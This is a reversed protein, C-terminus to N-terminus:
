GGTLGLWGVFDKLDMTVVFLMLSIIFVFGLYHFAVVVKESVPKGRIGEMALFVMHGGDLLPIPLFNVVALNASLMALFILLQTFGANAAGGAVTAITGPGRLMTLSLQGSGLKQLFWYVQLLDEKTERGGLALAEGFSTAKRIRTMSAFWFGRDPNFFDPSKTPELTLKRGDTTTLLVKENPFIRQSRVMLFYPWNGLSTDKAVFEVRPSLGIEKLVKVEEPDAPQFEASVIQDGAKLGAKAAPSDADVAALRDGLQYALGLAPISMPSRESLPAETWWAKRLKVQTEVPDKSGERAVAITATEGERRRLREPLTLPDGAPQGDIKTIRDGVKFGAAAAPSDNQIATV